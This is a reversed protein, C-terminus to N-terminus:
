FSRGTVSWADGTVNDVSSGYTFFLARGDLPQIDLEFSGYPGGPIAQQVLSCPPIDTSFLQSGRFGNVNVKFTRTVTDYNFIGVNSRYFEDARLGWISQYGVGVGEELSVSPFNQSTTGSSGPQPSWIRANGDIAANSDVTNSGAGTVGLVIVAGFGTTGFVDNVLDSYFYWSGADLRKSVSPRTCNAAGGGIPFFYFNVYQASSRRNVVVAETRFFTGGGGAGAGAIPIVFGSESGELVVNPEQRLLGAQDKARLQKIADAFTLDSPPADAPRRYEGAPAPRQTGQMPAAFLPAVVFLGSVLSFVRKM